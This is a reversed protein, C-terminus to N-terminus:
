FSLKRITRHVKSRNLGLEAAIERVSKGEAKLSMIEHQLSETDSDIEKLHRSEYDTGATVFQLFGNIKDIRCIRVNSGDHVIAGCRSKLHKIYRLDSSVASRGIAVVSDFFNFLKKSGALDNQTIPASLQRKPTHALILMSLSHRKKLQMLKLMMAGAADGKETVSNLYTVNDVIVVSAGNRLALQEISEIMSDEVSLNASTENDFMYAPNIEARLFNPSFRILQGSDSSYRQQFQKSSMEFDFYIVKQNAAVDEAIQVALISKGLNSDAFLCCLEGENWFGNWLPKPDPRSAAMESWENAEMVKILGSTDTLSGTSETQFLEEDDPIGDAMLSELIAFGDTVETQYTSDNAYAPETGHLETADPEMFETGSVEAAKSCSQNTTSNMTNFNLFNTKNRRM